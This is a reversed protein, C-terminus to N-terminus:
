FVETAAITISPHREPDFNFADQNDDNLRFIATPEYTTIIANDAPSSRLPPEFSITAYGSGDINVTATVIKLEIGIAIYDGPLLWGNRSTISGWSTNISAGTQGAGRVYGFTNATGRPSKHSLDFAYFRGAAGRLKALWAKFIRADAEGLNQWTATLLWRAGPLEYTQVTKNLPSEFSQTNPQLSLKCQTANARTLAPLNLTTM